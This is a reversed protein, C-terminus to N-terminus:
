PTPPGSRQPTARVFFNYNDYALEYATSFRKRLAKRVARILKQCDLDFKKIFSRVLADTRGNIGDPAGKLRRMTVHLGAFM